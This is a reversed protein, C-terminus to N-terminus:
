KRKMRGSGSQTALDSKCGPFKAMRVKITSSSKNGRLKEWYSSKLSAPGYTGRSSNCSGAGPTCEFQGRMIELACKMQAEIPRINSVDCLKGRWSRSSRRDELQFIGILTDNPGRKPRIYPSCKSEDWAISAMTWVWFRARDEKNLRSFGPCVQNMVPDSSIKNKHDDILVERIHEENMLTSYLVEGFEGFEGNNRIFRDCHVAGKSRFDPTLGVKYQSEGASEYSAANTPGGYLEAQSPLYTIQLFLAFTLAGNRMM